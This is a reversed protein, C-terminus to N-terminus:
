AYYDSGAWHEINQAGGGCELLIFEAGSAGINWAGRYEVTNPVSEDDALLRLGERWAGM